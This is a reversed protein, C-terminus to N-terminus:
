LFRISENVGCGGEDNMDRKTKHKERPQSRPFPSGFVTVQLVRKFVSVRKGREVRGIM